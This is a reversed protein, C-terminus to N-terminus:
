AQINMASCHPAPPRANGQGAQQTRGQGDHAARLWKLAGISAGLAPSDAQRLLLLRRCLARSRFQREERSAAEQRGGLGRLFQLGSVPSHWHTAATTPLAQQHRRWAWCGNRGGVRCVRQQCTGRHVLRGPRRSPCAIPMGASALRALCAHGSAKSRKRWKRRCRRRSGAAAIARSSNHVTERSRQARPEGVEVGEWGAALQPKVVVFFQAQQRCTPPLPPAPVAALAPGPSADRFPDM